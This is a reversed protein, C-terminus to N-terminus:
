IACQSSCGDGSQTNNDDCASSIVVGDGCTESCTTVGVDTYNTQCVCQSNFGTVNVATRFASSDCTLCNYYQGTAACTLCSYHCSVCTGGSSYTYTACTCSNNVVVFGTSCSTCISANLCTKCATPCASCIFSTSNGFTYSPCIPYCLGDLTNYYPSSYACVRLRVQFQPVSNYLSTTSTYVLQTLTNLTVNLDQNNNYSFSSVGGLYSLDLYGYPLSLFTKQTGYYTTAIAYDVFYNSKVALNSTDWILLYFTLSSIITSPYATATVTASSATSVSCTLNLQYYDSTTGTIGALFM